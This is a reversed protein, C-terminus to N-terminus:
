EMSERIEKLIKQMQDWQVFLVGYLWIAVYSAKKRVAAADPRLFNYKFNHKMIHLISYHCRECNISFKLRADNASHARGTDVREFPRSFDTAQRYVRVPRLM